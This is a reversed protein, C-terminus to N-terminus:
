VVFISCFFSLNLLHGPAVLMYQQCFSDAATLSSQKECPAPSLQSSPFKCFYALFFFILTPDM